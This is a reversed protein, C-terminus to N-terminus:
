RTSTGVGYLPLKVTHGLDWMSDWSKKRRPSCSTSIWSSGSMSSSVPAGTMNVPLASSAKRHWWKICCVPPGLRDGVYAVRHNAADLVTLHVFQIKPAERVYPAFPFANRIQGCGILDGDWCPASGAKPLLSWTPNTVLFANTSGSINAFTNRNTSIGGRCIRKTRM